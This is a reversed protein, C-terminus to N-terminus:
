EVAKVGEIKGVAQRIGETDQGSTLGVLRVVGDDAVVDFRLSSAAPNSLLSAAVRSSLALDRMAKTSAETAQFQHLRAADTVLDAAQEASMRALNLVMDFLLPEGWNVGFLGM